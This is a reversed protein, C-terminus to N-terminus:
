GLTHSPDGGDDNFRTIWFCTTQASSPILTLIAEDVMLHPSTFFSTKALPQPKLSTLIVYTV